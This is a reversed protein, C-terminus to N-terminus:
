PRDDSQGCIWALASHVGYLYDRPVTRQACDEMQVLVADVEATLPGMGPTGDSSAGTIPAADGRGLAWLYGALAGRSFQTQRDPGAATAHLRECASEVQERPRTGVRTGDTDTHQTTM